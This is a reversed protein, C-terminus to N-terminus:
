LRVLRGNIRAWRRLATEMANQQVGIRPRSKLFFLTFTVIIFIVPLVVYFDSGIHLFWVLTSILRDSNKFICVCLFLMILIVILCIMAIIGLVVFIIWLAAYLIFATFIYVGLVFNLLIPWLWHRSPLTLLAAGTIYVFRNDHQDVM